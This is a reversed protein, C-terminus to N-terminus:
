GEWANQSAKSSLYSEFSGFFTFLRSAFIALEAPEPDVHCITAESPIAKDSHFIVDIFRRDGHHKTQRSYMIFECEFFSQYFAWQGVGQVENDKSFSERTDSKSALSEACLALDLVQRMSASWPSLTTRMQHSKMDEYHTLTVSLETGRGRELLGFELRIQSGSGVLELRCQLSKDM